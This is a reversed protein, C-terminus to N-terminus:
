INTIWFFIRYIEFVQKEFIITLRGPSYDLKAYKLKIHNYKVHKKGVSLDWDFFLQEIKFINSTDKKLFFIISLRM